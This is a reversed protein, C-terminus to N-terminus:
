IIYDYSSLINHRPYEKLLKKLSPYKQSYTKVLVKAEKLKDGELCLSVAQKELESFRNKKRFFDFM